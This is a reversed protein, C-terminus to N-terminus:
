ATSRSTRRAGATDTWTANPLRLALNANTPAVNSDDTAVWGPEYGGAAGSNALGQGGNLHTHKGPGRRRSYGAGGNWANVFQRFRGVTVLYKDLRFSSVTPPIPRERRVAMRRVAHRVRYLLPRRVDPLVGRGGGGPEHLLMESTAGCNTMGSGGPACSPSGCGGEPRSGSGGDSGTGGHSSSGSGSGSSSSRGSASESGSSSANSTSSRSDGGTGADRKISAGSGSTSSGDSGVPSVLHLSSRAGCGVAYVGGAAELIVVLCAVSTLRRAATSGPVEAHERRM